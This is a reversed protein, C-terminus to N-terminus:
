SWTVVNFLFVLSINPDYPNFNEHYAHAINSFRKRSKELYGKIIMLEYNNIEEFM